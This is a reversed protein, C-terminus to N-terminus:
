AMFTRKWVCVPTLRRLGGSTMSRTPAASFSVVRLRVIKTNKGTPKGIWMQNTDATDRREMSPTTKTAELLAYGEAMGDKQVM